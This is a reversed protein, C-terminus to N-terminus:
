GLVAKFVFGRVVRVWTPMTFFFGFSPMAVSPRISSVWQMQEVLQRADFVLWCKYCFFTATAGRVNAQASLTWM